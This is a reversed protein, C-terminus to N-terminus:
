KKLCTVDIVNVTTPHQSMMIAKKAGDCNSQSTFEMITTNMVPSSAPGGTIILLLIWMNVIGKKVSCMFLLIVVSRWAM